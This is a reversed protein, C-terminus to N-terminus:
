RGEAWGDPLFGGHSLWGDLAEVADFFDQIENMNMDLGGDATHRQLLRRITKLAENPDM